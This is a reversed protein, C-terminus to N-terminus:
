NTDRQQRFYPNATEVDHMMQLFVHRRMRFRRRFKEATFISNQVFYDALLRENALERGRDKYARGVVSSGWQPQKLLNEQAWWSAGALM